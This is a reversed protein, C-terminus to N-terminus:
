HVRLIRKPRLAFQTILVSVQAPRIKNIVKLAVCSKGKVAPSALLRTVIKDVIKM